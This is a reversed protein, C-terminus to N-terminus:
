NIIVNEIEYISNSISFVRLIWLIQKYLNKQTTYKSQRSLQISNCISLGSIVYVSEICVAVYKIIISM